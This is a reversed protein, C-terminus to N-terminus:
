LSGTEIIQATESPTLGVRFGTHAVAFLADAQGRERLALNLTRWWGMFGNSKATSHFMRTALVQDRNRYVEVGDDQVIFVPRADSTRILTTQGKALITATTM